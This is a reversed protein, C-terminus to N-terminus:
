EVVLGNIQATNVGKISYDVLYYNVGTNPMWTYLEITDGTQFELDEVFTLNSTTANTRLTGFSVGNKYIQAYVPHSTSSTRITLSTRIKTNGYSSFNHIKNTYRQYPTSHTEIFTSAALVKLTDSTIEYNGVNNVGGEISVNTGPIGNFVFSM